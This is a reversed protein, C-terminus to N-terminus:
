PRVAVLCHIAAGLRAVERWTAGRDDSRLLQGADTGAWIAQSPGPAIATVRGAPGGAVAAPEWHIGEDLSRFLMMGGAGAGVLVPGRGGLRGYATAGALRPNTLEVPGNVTAVRLGVPEVAAGPADAWSRGGDFSQQPPLGDAAVLLAAADAAVIARVARGQLAVRAGGGGAPDDFIALGDATGALLTEGQAM